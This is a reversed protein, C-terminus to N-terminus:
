GREEVVASNVRFKEFLESPPSSTPREAAVANSRLLEGAGMLHRWTGDLPKSISLVPREKKGIRDQFSMRSGNLTSFILVHTTVVSAYADAHRLVDLIPGASQHM